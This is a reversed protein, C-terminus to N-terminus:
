FFFSVYSNQDFFLSVYSGIDFIMLTIVHSYKVEIDYGFMVKLGRVAYM